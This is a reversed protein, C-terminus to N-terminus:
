YFKPKRGDPWIDPVGDGLTGTFKADRKELFAAVAELTDPASCLAAIARSDVRHAEMPHSAGLMRWMMLRTLSTAVRSGEMFRAALEKARTMLAEDACTERVLGAEVAEDASITRAGMTWELARSIGVIRPLFWSSAAEPTLGRKTFVFSFRATKAAIRVDCPLLMTAGVGVAPGNIAAIVPKRSEFIRLSAIGGGDRWLEGHRLQAREPDLSLDAFARARGSLDAGACFVDGAGTLITAGIADDGDARDFAAVFENMMRTNYANHNEPRNLQIVAIGDQADYNITEFLDREM